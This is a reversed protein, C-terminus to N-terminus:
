DRRPPAADKAAEQMLRAVHLTLYAIEDTTITSGSRSQLVYGLRLAVQYADPHAAPIAAALADGIDTLQTDHDLRVFLYRLHTVFRAVAISGQDLPRGLAVAVVDLLEPITRTMALTAALGDSLFRANILHLAIAVTEAPPLQKGTAERILDISESATAYEEPYLQQVEWRLPHQEDPDRPRALAQSLHDALPIAVGPGVASGLRRMALDALQGALALHELSLDQVLSAIREIPLAATPVFWQEVSSEDVPQGPKTAFGLGRGLAVQRHGQSDEVLLANHGLQRIARM